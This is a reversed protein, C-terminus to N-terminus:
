CGLDCEFFATVHGFQGFNFGDGSIQIGGPDDASSQGTGLYIPRGRNCPGGDLVEAASDLALGDSADAAPSFKQNEIKGAAFIQQHVQAHGTPKM